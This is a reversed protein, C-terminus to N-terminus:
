SRLEIQTWIKFNKRGLGKPGEKEQILIDMMCLIDGIHGGHGDFAVCGDSM